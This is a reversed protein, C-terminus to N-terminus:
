PFGSLTYLRQLKFSCDFILHFLRGSGRSKTEGGQRGAAHKLIRRQVWVCLVSCMCACVDCECVSCKHARYQGCMACVCVHVCNTTTTGYCQLNQLQGTQTEVGLREGRVICYALLKSFVGMEKVTFHSYLQSERPPSVSEQQPEM